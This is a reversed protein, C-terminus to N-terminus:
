RFSYQAPAHPGRAAHFRKREMGRGGGGRRLLPTRENPVGGQPQKGLAVWKEELEKKNKNFYATAGDQVGQQAGDTAVDAWSKTPKAYKSGEYAFGAKYFGAPIALAPHIAAASDVVMDAANVAQQVAFESFKNFGKSTGKVLGWKADQDEFYKEVAAAGNEAGDKRREEAKRATRQENFMDENMDRTAEYYGRDGKAVYKILGNGLYTEQGVIQSLRKQKAQEERAMKARLEPPMEYLPAGRESNVRRIQQETTEGPLRASAPAQRAQAQATEVQSPVYAQTVSATGNKLAQVLARDADTAAM